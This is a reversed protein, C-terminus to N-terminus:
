RDRTMYWTGQAELDVALSCSVVGSILDVQDDPLRATFRCNNITFGFSTRSLEADTLTHTGGYDWAMGCTQCASRETCSGELANGLQVLHLKGAGECGQTILSDQCAASSVAVFSYDWDGTVSFSPAITNHCGSTALLAVWLWVSLNSAWHGQDNM